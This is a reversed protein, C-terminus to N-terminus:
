RLAYVCVGLGTGRDQQFIDATLFGGPPAGFRVAPGHSIPAPVQHSSRVALIALGSVRDSYFSSRKELLESIAENSSLVVMDEGM